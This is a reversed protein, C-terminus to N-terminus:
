FSCSFSVVKFWGQNQTIYICLLINRSYLEFTNYQYVRRRCLQWYYVVLGYRGNGLKENGLPMAIVKLCAFAGASLLTTYFESSFVVLLSAFLFAEPRKEYAGTTTLVTVNWVYQEGSMYLFGPFVLKRARFRHNHRDSVVVVRRFSVSSILLLERYVELSPFLHRAVSIWRQMMVSVLDTADRCAVM